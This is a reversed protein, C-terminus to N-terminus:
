KQLVDAPVIERVLEDPVLVMAHAPEGAPLLVLPAYTVEDEDLKTILGVTGRTGLGAYLVLSFRRNLPNEAAVLVASEPHAYIAGRLAFSHPGFVVPIQKRFRAALSNSGPHGLLILHHNRLEDESAGTDAKVPVVLGHSRRRLVDQLMRAAERNADAEDLTGYLILSNELDDDYGLVTFPAGNGCASIRYKDVVVRRPAASTVVEITDEVQELRAVGTTEGAATEVTVDVALPAGTENRRVSIRTRWREGERHTETKGLELTPLGTHDLWADFFASWSRGTGKEIFAQFQKSGVPMGANAQGFEEMLADFKGGGVLGRLSHLLLVGKGSSIQNWAVDHYSPRLKSLPQEDHSRAGLEYTCRFHNLETALDDLGSVDIGSEPMKEALYKARMALGEYFAFGNALWIDADEAALLTGHWLHPHPPEVSKEALGPYEGTEPDHLDAALHGEAASESAPPLSHLITWPNVVLPSIEPFKQRDGVQPLRINGVPPGFCGWSRMQLGLDTTTFLADVAFASVLGPTTFALKGFDADIRGKNKEYLDLWIADKYTTVPSAVATPPDKPSSISEMRVSMDKCNDCSWYFGEAGDIWEHKSSRFLKHQRTGLALLGIENRKLDALLWEASGLGNSNESMISVVQDLSEAYQVVQRVRSALPTGTVEFPTQSVNTEAMLIGSDSISYDMGSYIGGPATQMVFRHGSTPQLDLWVNFYNAPRLDDTTVHGFVIKGDRTAAGNAAFAGCHGPPRRRAAAPHFGELGNPTAAVAINLGEMEISMNLMVIDSLDLPHGAYKAGAASAGDAIGRMEELQERTFKRAFMTNVFERRIAWSEQPSAPDGAAAVVGIYGAIEPAMLRGHQLGRDYPDGEIHLVTWGAQPYRYGAGSRQVTAPDPLFDPQGGSLASLSCILSFLLRLIKM